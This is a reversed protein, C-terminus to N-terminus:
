GICDLGQKRLIVRVFGVLVLGGLNHGVVGVGVNQLLM